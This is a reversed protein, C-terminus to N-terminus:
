SNKLQNLRTLVRAIDKKCHRIASGKVESSTKAFLRLHMYEKKLSTCMFCLEQADKKLLDVFRM